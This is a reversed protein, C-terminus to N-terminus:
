QYVLPLQSSIQLDMLAYLRRDIQFFLAVKKGPIVKEFLPIYKQRVAIQQAQIEGWKKIMAMGQADTIIKQNAVFDTILAYFEDNQKRMEEAYQDYVPWFRTAEQESLPVNMAIIQKKESRLDRRALNLDREIAIGSDTERQASSNVVGAAFVVAFVLIPYVIRTM